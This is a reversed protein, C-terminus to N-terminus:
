RAVFLRRSAESNTNPPFHLIKTRLFCLRYHDYALCLELEAAAFQLLNGIVPHNFECKDPAAVHSFRRQDVHQHLPRQGLDRSSRAFGAQDIVEQDVVRPIQDVQGPVAISPHRLSLPAAKGFQDHIIHPAAALHVIQEHQDVRAV